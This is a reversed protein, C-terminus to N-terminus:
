KGTDRTVSKARSVFRSLLERTRPDGNAAKVIQSVTEEDLAVPQGALSFEDATPLLDAIPVKLADAIQWLLHLPARQRGSEINVISVRTKDVRTALTQQSVKPRQRERVERIRAGVLQYLRDEDM